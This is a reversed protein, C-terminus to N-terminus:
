FNNVLEEISDNIFNETIKKENLISYPLGEKVVYDNLITLAERIEDLTIGIDEPKISVGSKKIINIIEEHKNDQLRTMFFIGLCVLQGHVLHKRNISELAYAFYHESGEEFYCYGNNYSTIGVWKYGEIITKIGNETVNRVEDINEIVNDLLLQAKAAIEEDWKVATNRRCMLRWDYLGTHCSLIDAIGPRNLHKPANQIINYDIYIAEPFVEGVYKVKGDTRIAIPYSFCADVSIITPILHVKKGKKWAFYKAMDISMGGGFGIVEDFEGINKVAEEVDALEMTRVYFQFCDLSDFVYGYLEWINEMTVVLCKKGQLSNRLDNVVDRGYVVNFKANKM